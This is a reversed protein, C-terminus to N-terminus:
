IFQSVRIVFYQSRFEFLYSVNRHFECYIMQLVCHDCEINPLVYRMKINYGKPAKEPKGQETENERCEPDVYYRGPYNPDIPSASGDDPARTLPHMNFCEQTAVGMPDALDATDCIFYECHGQFIALLSQYRTSQLRTDVAFM